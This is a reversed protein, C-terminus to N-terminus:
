VMDLVELIDLVPDCVGVSEEIDVGVGVCVMVCVCDDERVLVCVPVCVVEWVRDM